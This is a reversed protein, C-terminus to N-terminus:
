FLLALSARSLTSSLPAAVFHRLREFPGYPPAAGEVHATRVSWANVAAANWGVFRHKNHVNRVFTSALLHEDVKLQSNKIGSEFQSGSGGCSSPESNALHLM